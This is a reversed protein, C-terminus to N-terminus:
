LMVLGGDVAICQGTVMAADDSVLFAMAGVVDDPTLTRKIPQQDVTAEFIGAAVHPGALTGPTRVLGPAIANVTVGHPGYESALARVLGIIAGKTAVYHPFGPAGNYFTNSAMAVVRGWGREVMGPLVAQLLPVLPEVNLRMLARWADVTIDEFRAMPYAGVNSVVVDAPRGVAEEGRRVAAAVDDTDALDIEVWVGRRGARAIEALPLTPEARDLMVVDMGDVALRVAMAAGIGAAAGTIVALRSGGSAKGDTDRARM